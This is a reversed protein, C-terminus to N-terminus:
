LHRSKLALSILEAVPLELDSELVIQDVAKQAELSKYGLNVLAGIADSVAGGAKPAISAMQVTSSLKDVNGKLELVLREAMKKGIGPIKTISKTDGYKIAGYLDAVTMHGLISISLRPGIGSITNLTEFFDREESNLFGFIKQSDDRVVLSTYFCVEEGFQPLQQFTAISIHLLYGIGAIDMVAKCPSADTLIGKLYEFM